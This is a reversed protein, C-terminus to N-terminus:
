VSLVRVGLETAGMCPLLRKPLVGMGWLSRLRTGWQPETLIRNTEINKSLFNFLFLFLSWLPLHCLFIVVSCKIKQLLKFYFYSDFKPVRFLGMQFTFRSPNQFFGWSVRASDCAKLRPFSARPWGALTRVWHLFGGTGERVSVTRVGPEGQVLIEQGEQELEM